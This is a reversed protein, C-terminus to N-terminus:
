AVWQCAYLRASHGDGFMKACGISEEWNRHNSSIAPVSESRRIKVEDHSGEGTGFPVADIQDIKQGVGLGAVGDEIARPEEIRHKGVVPSQVNRWLEVEVNQEPM